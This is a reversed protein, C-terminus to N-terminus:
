QLYFQLRKSSSLVLSYLIISSISGSFNIIDKQSKQKTWKRGPTEQTKGKQLKAKEGKQTLYNM